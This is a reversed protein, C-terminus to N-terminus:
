ISRQTLPCHWSDRSRLLIRRVAKMRKTERGSAFKFNLRLTRENLRDVRAVRRTLTRKERDLRPRLLIKKKRKEKMGISCIAHGKNLQDVGGHISWCNACACPCDDMRNTEIHRDGLFIKPRSKQKLPEGQENVSNIMDTSLSAPRDAM